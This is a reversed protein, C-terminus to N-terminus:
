SRISDLHNRRCTKYVLNLHKLKVVEAQRTGVTAQAPGLYDSPRIPFAEPLFEPV